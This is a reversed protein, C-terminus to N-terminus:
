HKKKEPKMLWSTSDIGYVLQIKVAEGLVVGSKGTLLRHFRSRDIGCAKAADSYSIDNEWLVDILVQAGLSSPKLKKRKNGM